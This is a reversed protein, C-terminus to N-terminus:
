SRFNKDRNEKFANSYRMKGKLSGVVYNWLARSIFYNDHGIFEDCQMDLRFRLHTLEQSVTSSSKEDKIVWISKEKQFMDEAGSSM